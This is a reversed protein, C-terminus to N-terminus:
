KKKDPYKIAVEIKPKTSSATLEIEKDLRCDCAVSVTLEGSTIKSLAEVKELFDKLKM